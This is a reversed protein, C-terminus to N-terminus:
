FTERRVPAVHGRARDPIITFEKGRNSCSDAWIGLTCFFDYEGVLFYPPGVKTEIPGSACTAAMQRHERPCGSLGRYAFQRVHRKMRCCRCVKGGVRKEETQNEPFIAAGFVFCIRGPVL